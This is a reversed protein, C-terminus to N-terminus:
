GGFREERGAWQRRLEGIFDEIAGWYVNIEAPSSKLQRQVYQRAKEPDRTQVEEPNPVVALHLYQRLSHSGPLSVLAHHLVRFSWEDPRFGLILTGGTSVAARVEIPLFERNGAAASLFKFYDDETLLLSKPDDLRGFLYCVLPREISPQGPNSGRRSRDRSYLRCIESSPQKGVARLARILQEDPAATLYVPLPLEALLVYPDLSPEARRVRAAELLDNLEANPPLDRFRRLVEQSLRGAFATRPFATGQTIALYQAVRPLDDLQHAVLAFDAEEAWRRAIERSSGVLGELLGFGLIPVCKGDAIEALLSQWKDFESQPATVPTAGLTLGTQGTRVRTFLTPVWWFDSEDASAHRADATARDVRGDKFLERFFVTLFKDQIETSAPPGLTLVALVGAECLRAGLTMLASRTTRLDLTCTKIIVLRPLRPLAQLERVFLAEPWAAVSGDNWTLFLALQGYSSIVVHTIVYL